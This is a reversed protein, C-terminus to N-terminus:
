IHILSLDLTVVAPGNTLTYCITTKGRGAPQRVDVQQIEPVASYAEGAALLAVAACLVTLTKM